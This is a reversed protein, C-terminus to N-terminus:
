LFPHEKSPNLEQHLLCGPVHLFDGTGITASHEGFNGGVCVFREKWSM